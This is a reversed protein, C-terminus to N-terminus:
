RAWVGGAATFNNNADLFDMKYSGWSCKLLVFVEKMEGATM